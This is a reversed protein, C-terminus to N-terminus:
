DRMWRDLNDRVTGIDQNAIEDQVENATKAADVRRRLEKERAEQKGQSKGTLFAWLVAGALALAAWLYAKLRFMM